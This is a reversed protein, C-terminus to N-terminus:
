YDSVKKVKCPKGFASKKFRTVEGFLGIFSMYM